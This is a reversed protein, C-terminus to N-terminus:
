ETILPSNLKSSTLNGIPMRNSLSETLDTTDLKGSM